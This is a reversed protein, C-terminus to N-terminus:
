LRAKVGHLTFFFTARRTPMRRTSSVVCRSLHCQLFHQYQNDTSRLAYKVVITQIFFDFVVPEYYHDESEPDPLVYLRPNKRILDCYKEVERNGDRVDAFGRLLPHELSAGAVTTQDYKIIFAMDQHDGIM